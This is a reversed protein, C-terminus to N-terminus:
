CNKKPMKYGGIGEWIPNWFDCEDFDVKQIPTGDNNMYVGQRECVDYKPWNQLCSSARGRTAMSTWAAVMMKSTQHEKATYNCTGHGWPQNDM